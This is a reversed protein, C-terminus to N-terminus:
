AGDKELQRVLLVVVMNSLTRQEQEALARIREALDVPFVISTTVSKPEPVNMGKQQYNYQNVTLLDLSVIM